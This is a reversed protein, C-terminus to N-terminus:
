VCFSPLWFRRIVRELNSIRKRGSFSAHHYSRVVVSGGKVSAKMEAPLRNTDRGEYLIEGVVGDGPNLFDFTFVVSGKGTREVNASSEPSSTCLMAVSLVRVGEEFQLSPPFAEPIDTWRIETTGGNWCVIQSRHLNEIVEGRFHITVEPHDRTQVPSNHFVFILHKTRRSKAYWYLSLLGFFVTAVSGAVGIIPIWDIQRREVLPGGATAIALALRNLMTDSLIAVGM